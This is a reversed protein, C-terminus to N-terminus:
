LHIFIRWSKYPYNSTERLHKRLRKIKEKINAINGDREGFLDAVENLFNECELKSLFKLFQHHETPLYSLLPNWYYKSDIKELLCICYIILDVFVLLELSYDKIMNESLHKELRTNDEIGNIILNLSVKNFILDPLRVKDIRTSNKNTLRYTHTIIDYIKSYQENHWLIAIVYIIIEYLLANRAQHLYNSIVPGDEVFNEKEINTEKYKEVFDAFVNVFYDELAISSFIYVIEDRIPNFEEVIFDLYKQPNSQFEIAMKDTISIGFINKNVLNLAVKVKSKLMLNNHQNRNFDLKNLFVNPIAESKPTWEIERNKSHIHEVIEKFVKDADEKTLDAYYRSELYTPIHIKNDPCRQFVVPIFKSQETKDYVERSIIQTETGVGGHRKNAKETYNEDLLMIVYDVSSDNVCREMFYNVDDGFKLNRVDILIEINNENLRNCFDLVKIQYEDDGRAYSIFVKPSKAENKSHM